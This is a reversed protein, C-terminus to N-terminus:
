MSKLIIKFVAGEDNNTVSLKGKCHDEIITKSMYLGLGTGDKELKTSFYPDFVKTIIDEPIGGGNDSVELIMLDDEEYSHLRIHADKVEKELLIDEANKILNLVVQKVENPYTKFDSSSDNDYVLTIDKTEISTKIINLVNEVIEQYNTEIKEKSSKFFSRFDDITASLHQSYSSIKKSLEIVDENKLTGLVAKLELAGSTSSIATLPQRWQHAIMSIMEGMQALRSQEIMQQDKQRNNEVEESVRQELTINLQHVKKSKYQLEESKKELEMFIQEKEKERKNDIYSFWVIIIFIAIGFYLLYLLVSDIEELVSSVYNYDEISFDVVLIAEVKDGVIVPSAYTMWLSEINKHFFYVAEKKRYINEFEEVELPTYIEGFESKEEPNKTGDLLFRYQSKQMDDRGLLYIYKYRNTVFLGIEEELIAVAKPSKKLYKYFDKEKINQKIKQIINESFSNVYNISSSKYTHTIENKAITFKNYIFSMVVVLIVAIFNFVIMARINTFIHM